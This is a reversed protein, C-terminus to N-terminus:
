ALEGQARGKLSPRFRGPTKPSPDRHPERAAPTQDPRVSSSWWSGDAGAQAGAVGGRFRQASEARGCPSPQARHTNPSRHEAHPLPSLAPLATEGICAPLREAEGAETSSSGRSGEGQPLASFAGANEPLPGPTPRLRGAGPCPAGVAVAVFLGCGGTNSHGRGSLATRKRGERLPLAPRRPSLRVVTPLSRLRMERLQDSSVVAVDVM